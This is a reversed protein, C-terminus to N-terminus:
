RLNEPATKRKDGYGHIATPQYREGVFEQKFVYRQIWATGDKARYGVEARIYRFLIAGSLPHREIQWDPDIIAVAVIKGERADRALDHGSGRILTKMEEELSRDQMEARPMKVGKIAEADLEEWLRAYSSFDGEITFEGAALDRYRSLVIRVAHKGPPLGSLLRTLQMPGARKGEKEFKEPWAVSPDSYATMKEPDPAVDLVLTSAVLADRKLTLSTGGATKLAGDIWVQVQFANDADSEGVEAVRRIQDPFVILGYIRDGARFATALHAPHAASIPASSFLIPPVPAAEPTPTAPAPTKPAAAAKDAAAQRLTEGKVAAFRASADAIKAQAADFDPHSSVGQGAAEAKARDLLPGLAAIKADIEGVKREIQDPQTNANSRLTQLLKLSSDVSRIAQDLERMTERAPRPLPKAKQAWGDGAIVAMGIALTILWLARRHPRHRRM